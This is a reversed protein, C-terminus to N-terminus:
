MWLAGPFASTLPRVADLMRRHRWADVSDPNAYCSPLKTMQREHEVHRDYSWRVSSNSREVRELPVSIQGGGMMGKMIAVESEQLNYHDRVEVSVGSLVSDARAAGLSRERIRPTARGQRRTTRSRVSVGPPM